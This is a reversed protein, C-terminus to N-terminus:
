AALRKELAAKALAIAEDFDTMGYRALRAELFGITSLGGKIESIDIPL